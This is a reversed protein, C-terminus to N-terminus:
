NKVQVALKLIKTNDLTIDFNTCVIKSNILKAQSGKYGKCEM